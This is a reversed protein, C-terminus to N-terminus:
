YWPCPTTSSITFLRTSLFFWVSHCQVERLGAARHQMVRVVLPGVATTGPILEQQAVAMPRIVLPIAPRGKALVLQREQQVLAFRFDSLHMM